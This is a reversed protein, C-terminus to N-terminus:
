CCEIDCGPHWEWTGGCDPENRLLISGEMGKGTPNCSHLIEWSHSCKVQMVFWMRKIWGQGLTIYPSFSLILMKGDEPEDERCCVVVCRAPKVAEGYYLADAYSRWIWVLVRSRGEWTSLWWHWPPQLVRSGAGVCHCCLQWHSQLCRGFGPNGNMCLCSIHEALVDCAATCPM